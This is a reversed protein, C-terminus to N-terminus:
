RRRRLLGLAGVSLLVLSCPEPTTTQYSTGQGIVQGDSFAVAKFPSGMNFWATHSKAAIDLIGTTADGLAFANLNIIGNDVTDPDASTTADLLNQILTDEDTHRFLTTWAIHNSLQAAEDDMFLVIHKEGPLPDTALNETIGIFLSSAIPADSPFFVDMHTTALGDANFAWIERLGTGGDTELLFLDKVPQGINTTVDYHSFYAANAGVCLAGTALTSALTRTIFSM